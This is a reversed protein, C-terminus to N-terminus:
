RRAAAGAKRAKDIAPLIKSILVDEDIPGAQKFVVRGTGDIVFTEPFKAVGWDISVRGNADDGVADYPNGYRGLFVKVKVPQDKNAIGYLRVGSQQKMRTLFPHEQPCATCWTAWFNVVSVEGRTLNGTSLGPGAGQFGPLQFEPARKDILPSPLWAPDGSYLRFLFLLALLTFIVIPLLHLWRGWDRTAASGDTM